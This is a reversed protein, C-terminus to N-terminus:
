MARVIAQAGPWGNSPLVDYRAARAVIASLNGRRLDNLLVRRYLRSGPPFRLGRYRRRVMRM